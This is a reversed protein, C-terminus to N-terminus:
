HVVPAELFPTVLIEKQRVTALRASYPANEKIIELSIPLRKKGEHARGAIGKELRIQGNDLPSFPLWKGLRLTRKLLKAAAAIGLEVQEIVSTREKPELGAAAHFRDEHRQRWAHVPQVVVPRLLPRRLCFKVIEIQLRSIPRLLTP